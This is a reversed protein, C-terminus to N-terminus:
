PGGRGGLGQVDWLSLAVPREAEERGAGRERAVLSGVIVASAIASLLHKMTHGSMAGAIEFIAHDGLEAIKAAVYLLIAFGFAARETIPTRGRAQWSPIVVLAAGQLLLYPRLDATATWWWVSLAGFVALALALRASYPGYHTDAFVGAILGACALTIPLRDWVLRQDDPAWHYYASGAAILALAMFFLAYGPWSAGLAVRAARTRFSWLGWMGALALGINSLVDAANPIGFLPRADAFDHYWAPQHVPGHVLMAIAALAIVAAPLHRTFRSM